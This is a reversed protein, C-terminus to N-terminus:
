IDIYMNNFSLEMIYPKIEYTLEFNIQDGWAMKVFM